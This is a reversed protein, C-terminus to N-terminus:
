LAALLDGAERMFRSRPVVQSFGAALARDRVDPATHAYVGLVPVGAAVLEDEGGPATVLDVVLAQADAAAAVARDRDAVVTVDHGAAGLLERVRSGFMLDGALAVVKM